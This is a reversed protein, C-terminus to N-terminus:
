GFLIDSNATVFLIDWLMQLVMDLAIMKKMWVVEQISVIAPTETIRPSWVLLAAAVAVIALWIFLVKPRDPPLNKLSRRPKKIDSDPM